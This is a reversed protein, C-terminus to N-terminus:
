TAIVQKDETLSFTKSHMKEKAIYSFRNIIIKVGPFVVDSIKIFSNSRNRVTKILNKNEENLLKIEELVDKHKDALGKMKKYMEENLRKMQAFEIIESDIKKLTKKHENLKIRNKILAEKLEYDYGVEIITNTGYENGASYIEISNGAIVYGGIISAHNGKGIIKDKVYINSQVIERIFTLSGRSYVKQEQIFKVEVNGGAKIMGSGVGLFGGQAKVNGGAELTADGIYGGIDINNKLNLYFGNLVNGIVKLSGYGFINGSHYDIDGYITLIEKVSFLNNKNEIFGDVKSYIKNVDEEKVFVNEGLKVPVNKGEVAPIMKGYVDTGNKGQVPPHIVAILDDKKVTIVPNVIQYAKNKEKNFLLNESNNNATIEFWGDIGNKPEKGRVFVLNSINKKSGNFEAVSNKLLEEDVETIINLKTLEDFINKSSILGNENKSLFLNIVASISDDSITIAFGEEEFSYFKKKTNQQSSTRNKDDQDM